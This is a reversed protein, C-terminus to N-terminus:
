KRRLWDWFRALLLQGNAVALGAALATALM